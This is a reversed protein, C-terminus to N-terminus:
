LRDNEQNILKLFCEGDAGICRLTRREHSDDDRPSLHYADPHSRRSPNHQTSSSPGLPCKRNHGSPPSTSVESRATTLLAGCRRRCGTSCFRFITSSVSCGPADTARTARACSTLAFWTNAQRRWYWWPSSPVALSARPKNGTRM